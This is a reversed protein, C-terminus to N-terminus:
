RCLYDWIHSENTGALIPMTKEQQENSVTLLRGESSYSQVALLKVTKERCAISYHIKQSKDKNAYFVWSQYDGNKEQISDVDVYPSMGDSQASIPIWTEARVPLVSFLTVFSSLVFKKLM